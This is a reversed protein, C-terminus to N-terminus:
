KTTGTFRYGTRTCYPLSFFRYTNQEYEFDVHHYGDFSEIRTLMWSSLQKVDNVDTYELATANTNPHYGFYYTMGDTPSQLKFGKFSNDTDLVVTIKIDSQPLM